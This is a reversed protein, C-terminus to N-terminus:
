QNKTNKIVEVSYELFKIVDNDKEVIKREELISIFAQNHRRSAVDAARQRVKKSKHNLARRMLLLQEFLAFASNIMHLSRDVVRSNPHMLLSRIMEKAEDFYYALMELESIATEWVGAAGEIIAEEFHALQQNTISKSEIIAIKDIVMQKLLQSEKELNRRSYRRKDFVKREIHDLERELSFSFLTPKGPIKWVHANMM